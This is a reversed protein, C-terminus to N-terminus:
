ARAEDRVRSVERVAAVFRAARDGVHAPDALLSGGVLLMVDSGYFAIVEGLSHLQLGGAPV